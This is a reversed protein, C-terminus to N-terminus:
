FKNWLCQFFLCNEVFVESRNSLSSNVIQGFLNKFLCLSPKVILGMQIRKDHIGLLHKHPNSSKNCTESYPRIHTFRRTQKWESWILRYCDSSVCCRLASFFIFGKFICNWKYINISNKKKDYIYIHIISEDLRACLVSDRNHAIFPAAHNFHIIAFYESLHLQVCWNPLYHIFTQSKKKKPKQHTAHM